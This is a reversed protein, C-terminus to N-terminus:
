SNLPRSTAGALREIYRPWFATKAVADHVNLAYACLDYSGYVEHLIVALTRLKAPPVRHLAMFDRVYVADAWLLQGMTAEPNGALQLPKFTRGQIEGFRHFFFGRQRLLCDIDGFPREGKYLQVFDVEAHVVVTDRLREVAGELVDYTAGQVDIKLFDIDGLEALDDLRRTTVQEIRVPRVLEELYQFKALLDSNPPYISSTMTHNTIYFDRQSGDGIVYPLYRHVPGRIQNLRACEAQIPEFGVVRCLGKAILKDHPEYNERAFMAGVACVRVTPTDAGLVTAIDFPTPM